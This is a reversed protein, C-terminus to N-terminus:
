NINQSAGLVDKNEIAVNLWTKYRNIVSSMPCFLLPASTLAEHIHVSLARKQKFILM